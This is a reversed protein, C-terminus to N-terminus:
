RNEFIKRKLYSTLEADSGVTSENSRERERESVVSHAKCIQLIRTADISKTDSFKIVSTALAQQYSNIRISTWDIVKEHYYNTQKHLVRTCM